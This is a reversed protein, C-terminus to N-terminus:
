WQLQHENVSYFTRQVNFNGAEEKTSKTLNGDSKRGLKRPVAKGRKPFSPM